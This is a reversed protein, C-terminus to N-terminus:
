HGVLKANGKRRCQLVPALDRSKKSTQVSRCCELQLKRWNVIGTHPTRKKQAKATRFFASCRCDLTPSRRRSHEAKFRVGTVPHKEWYVPCEKLKKMKEQPQRCNLQPPNVGGIEDRSIRLHFRDKRARSARAQIPNRCEARASPQSAM